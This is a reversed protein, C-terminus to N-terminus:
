VASGFALVEFGEGHAPLLPDAMEVGVDLFGVPGELFVNFEEDHDFVVAAPPGEDGSLELSDPGFVGDFVPVVHQDFGDLPLVSQAVGVM